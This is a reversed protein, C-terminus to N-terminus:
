RVSVKVAEEGDVSVIAIGAPVSITANDSTLVENAVIQGLITSVVVNKGAANKINIAGDYAVVKVESASVSENATPAAEEDVSLVLREISSASATTWTLKDGINSLYMTKNENGDRGAKTQRIYYYGDGDETEIIQFKFRNLGGWTNKNDAKMAVKKDAEGKVTLTLTDRTANMIGTKFLAKDHDKDWSYLRNYEGPGVYYKASDVPNFLFLRESEATSGEGMGRSIYFSPVIADKDTVHLYYVEAENAVVIGDRDENMSIYNGNESQISVHGEEAPWSVIPSTEGLYTKIATAEEEIAYTYQADYKYNDGSVYELGYSSSSMKAYDDTGLTADENETEFSGTGMLDVSGDANLRVIFETGTANVEYANYTRQALYTDTEEADNIYELKYVPMAVVDGFPEVQVTGNLEYVYSREFKLEKDEKNEEVRILKWLAADSVEPSVLAYNTGQAIMYNNDGVYAYLRNSTNNVDRGFNLTVMKGEEENLFGAYKDVTSKTLIIQADNFKVTEDEDVTVEYNNLNVNAIEFEEASNTTAMSYYPTGNTEGDKFLQTTFSRGSERNTFTIENTKADAKTIVFQYAPTNLVSQALAEGKAVWVHDSNNLTGFTLYKGNESEDDDGSVFQINYVAATRGEELFDFVSAISSQSYKFVFQNSGPKTALAYSNSAYNIVQLAVEAKGHEGTNDASEKKLYRFNKLDLSFPYDGLTAEVEFCANWISVQADKTQKAVTTGYYMNLTNSSGAIEILQFGEGTERAGPTVEACNTSSVAIFTCEKLYNYKKEESWDNNFEEGAPRAVTFYTGKPFGYDQDGAAKVTNDVYIAKVQKNTPGFLNEVTVGTPTQVDFNFGKKNYLGNLKETDIDGEIIESGIRYFKIATPQGYDNWSNTPDALVLADAVAGSGNVATLYYYKGSKSEEAAAFSIEPTSGDYPNNGGFVFESSGGSLATVIAPKDDAVGSYRLYTETEVNYFTYYTTGAVTKENITWAFKALDEESFGEDANFPVVIQEITGDDKLQFGYAFDGYTGITQVMVYNAGNYSNGDADKDSFKAVPDLNSGLLGQVSEAFASSSLLSGGLMLGCTLITSVKKNM